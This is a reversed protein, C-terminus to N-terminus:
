SVRERQCHWYRALALGEVNNYFCYLPVADIHRAFAELAEIQYPPNSPYKIRGCRYTGSQDIRM